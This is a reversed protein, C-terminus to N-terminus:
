NRVPQEAHNLMESAATLVRYGVDRGLKTVDSEDVSQYTAREAEISRAASVLDTNTISAEPDNTRTVARIQARAVAEKITAPINGKLAEGAEQFDEFSGTIRGRAYEIAIRIAAEADPPQARFLFDVRGPRYMAQTVRDGHNTTFIVMIDLRKTDAGDLTNLLKDVESTREVGAIKDVDEVFVVAPQYARALMHADHFETPNSVYIYTWHHDTAVRAIHTAALTKGTGYPGAFLVGRKLTGGNLPRVLDAHTIYALVDNRYQEELDASYIPTQAQSVDLFKIEPIALADGDDDTFQVSLAKGKYISRESVLLKTRTVIADFKPKHKGKIQGYLMFVLHKGERTVGTSLHGTIGPVEFDGWPVTVMNGAADVVIEMQTNHNRGCICRKSVVYGFLEELALKLAHAGDYPFAPIIARVSTMEEEEDRKRTLIDIGDNLEMDEPILIGPGKHRVVDAIHVENESEDLAKSMAAVMQRARSNTQAM